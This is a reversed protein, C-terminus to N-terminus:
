IMDKSLSKKAANNTQCLFLCLLMGNKDKKDLDLHDKGYRVQNASLLQEVIQKLHEMTIFNYEFVKRQRLVVHLPSELRNNFRNLCSGLRLLRQVM